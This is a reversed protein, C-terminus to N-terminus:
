ICIIMLVSPHERTRVMKITKKMAGTVGSSWQSGFGICSVLVVSLVKMSWPIAPLANGSKSALSPESTSTIALAAVDEEPLPTIVPSELGKGKEQMEYM